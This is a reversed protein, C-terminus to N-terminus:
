LSHKDSELKIIYCRWLGFATLQSETHTHTCTDMETHHIHTHPDVPIYTSLTYAHSHAHTHIHADTYPTHIHTHTYMFTHKHHIHTHLTSRIAHPTCASSSILHGAKHSQRMGTLCPRESFRSSFQCWCAGPEGMELGWLVPTKLMCTAM